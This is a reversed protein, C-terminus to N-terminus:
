SHRRRLHRRLAKSMLHQRVTWAMAALAMACLMAGVLVSGEAYPSSDHLSDYLLYAGLFSFAVFLALSLYKDKKM